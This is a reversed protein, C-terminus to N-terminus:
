VSPAAILNSNLSNNLKKSQSAISNFEALIAEYKTIDNNINTRSQSLAAVRDALAARQINFQAQSTFNGSNARSNFSTIENNLNQVDTNYQNSSNKISNSLSVLQASLESAKANLMQFVSIYKANLDVVKQRDSFYKKYHAELEPSINAIETGIVSHLENDRQGPENRDYYAMRQKFETSNELKKAEAELLINVENKESAGMRMYAAHLTEHAATTERVGDLQADTVNYVYIQYNSYCGLISTTREVDSCVSNFVKIEDTSKALLPQSALFLFKGYGDMGSRDILGIVESTPQYQWVTLQDLILQKNLIAWWSVALLGLCFIISVIASFVKHSQQLM